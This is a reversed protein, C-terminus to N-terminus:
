PLNDVKFLTGGRGIVAGVAPLWTYTGAIRDYIESSHAFGLTGDVTSSETLTRREVTTTAFGAPIASGAARATPSGSQVLAIAGAAGAVILLAALAIVRPRGSM